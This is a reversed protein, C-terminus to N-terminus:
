EAHAIPRWEDEADQPDDAILKCAIAKKLEKIAAPPAFHHSIDLTKLTADRPLQMLSRVGAETLNGLSLDLTDLRRVIPANVAVAAIDDAIVSNRLGLYNLKPFLKGALLPQLDEVTADFGYNPEGLLLELRELSPFDGRLIERLLTRSMGGTEVALDKLADHAANTFRLENGGRVRLVELKPFAALLPTVDSQNIWSLETEEFVIDGLFLARLEPLRGARAVLADVVEKSSEGEFGKPWIGIVLAALQDAGEQDLLEDLKHQHTVKDDYEARLRYALKPGQWSDANDFDEVRRGAFKESHETFM